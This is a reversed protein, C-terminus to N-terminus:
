GTLADLDLVKGTPAKAGVPEDYASFTLAGPDKESASEFRLLYPEGETAVYLTNRDTGDKEHLVIAPTGDVTTTRGRTVDTSGSGEADDLMTDLDCFGTMDEADQGTASTKTWRGALLAVAADTDAKPEGESQARLFREDYKMYLTDGTKILEAEGQGDLSMTGACEGQRDLAMDIRITGGSEDDPVDGTMRLSRAGTTAELARDAIEDGSLGAFPEASAKATASATAAAAGGGGGDGDKGSQCGTLSATTAAMLCLAVLTTRRM